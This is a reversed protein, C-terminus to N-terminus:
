EEESGVALGITDLSLYEVLSIFLGHFNGCNLSNGNSLSAKHTHENVFSDFTNAFLGRSGDLEPVNAIRKWFGVQLRFTLTCCIM